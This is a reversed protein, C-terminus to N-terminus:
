WPKWSLYDDICISKQQDQYQTATKCSQLLAPSYQGQQLLGQVEHHYQTNNDLVQQQRDPPLNGPCFYSPQTVPKYVYDLQNQKLFDIIDSFYYINLNSIMPAASLWRALNKFQAINKILTSWKLPYRMYEFVSETGDISLCLNLNEFKELVQLQQSNLEVSGNTVISLFCRTNGTEILRKLIEFNRKELLPEGGVFSLQVIDSWDIDDTLQQPLIKYNPFKNLSAWASSLASGCTVCTANCLNSTYLKVIKTSYNGAMVDQQVTEIDRNLYYDFASNHLQRESTLGQDEMNWCVSCEAARQGKLISNRVSDIDTGPALRCCYINKQQYLDIEYGYFPLVCFVSSM